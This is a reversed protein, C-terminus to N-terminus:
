AGEIWERVLYQVASYQDGAQIAGTQTRIRAGAPLRNPNPLSFSIANTPTVLGGALGESWSYVFVTSAPESQNGGSICFINVGDDLTLSVLRNAVTASTTLTFKIAILEWRAGTPVTESIEAGAAPNTGTISRLAGGSDLSTTVLQNPFAMPQKANLYGAALVQLALSSSGLGRVIEVVVYTQGIAPAAGSAFIEGGLLWGEPTVIISSKASRDTNPTQVESSAQINGECDVFRHRINLVVNAAANYSTVRINDDVRLYQGVASYLNGGTDAGAGYPPTIKPADPM